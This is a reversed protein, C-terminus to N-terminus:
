QGPLTKSDLIITNAHIIIIQTLAHCVSFDQYEQGKSTDKKVLVCVSCVIESLTHEHFEVDSCQCNNNSITSSSLFM